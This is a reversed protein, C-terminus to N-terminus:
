SVRARVRRGTGTAGGAPSPAVRYGGTTVTTPRADYLREGPHASATASAESQYANLVAPPLRGRDGVAFGQQRAWQRIVATSANHRMCGTHRLPVAPRPVALCPGSIIPMRHQVRCASIGLTTGAVAAVVLPGYDIAELDFLSVAGEEIRAFLLTGGLGQAVAPHRVHTM